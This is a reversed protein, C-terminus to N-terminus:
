VRGRTAEALPVPRPVSASLARADAERRPLGGEHELIASREVLAEHDYAAVPPPDPTTLARDFLELLRSM